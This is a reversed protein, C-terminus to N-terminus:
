RLVYAILNKNTQFTSLIVKKSYKKKRLLCFNRCVAKMFKLIMSEFPLQMYELHTILALCHCWVHVTWVQTRREYLLHDDLKLDEDFRM